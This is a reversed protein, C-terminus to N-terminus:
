IVCTIPDSGCVGLSTPIGSTLSYIVSENIWPENLKYLGDSTPTTLVVDFYWTVNDIGNANYDVENFYVIVTNECGVCADNKDSGVPFYCFEKSIVGVKDVIAYYTMDYDATHTLTDDVTIINNLGPAVGWGIYTSSNTPYATVSLNTGKIVSKTKTYFDVGSGDDILGTAFQNIPSVEYTITVEDPNCVQIAEVFSVCVVETPTPTPTPTNTPTPTPTNTPTPTPTNTPEVTPTPTPTPTIKNVDVDFECDLTPTPTPTNTPEVTPTPTPTNTPDPTLTPTPTPTPTIKNVDVDFSCDLTPTPTPTNTPGVTPTPTPTPTPTNTPGPTLTPTPTPTPTQLVHIVSNVDCIDLFETKLNLLTITLSTDPIIIRVGNTSTLDAYSINTTSGSTSEYIALTDGSGSNYYIDYPGSDTGGTIKVDFIRNAM